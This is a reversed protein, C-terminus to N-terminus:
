QAMMVEVLVSNSNEEPHTEAYANALNRVTKEDSFMSDINGMHVALIKSFVYAFDTDILQRLKDDVNKGERVKVM